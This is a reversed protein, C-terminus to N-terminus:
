LFCGPEFGNYVSSITPTFPNGGRVDQEWVAAPVSKWQSVTAEPAKFNRFFHEGANMNGSNGNAGFGTITPYTTM